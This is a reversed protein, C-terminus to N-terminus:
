WIIHTAEFGPYLDFPTTNKGSEDASLIGLVRADSSITFDSFLFIESFLFM